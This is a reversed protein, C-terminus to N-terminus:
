GAAAVPPTCLVVLASAIEDVPLVFDVAGTQIAASPMEFYACTAQNQVLVTGGHKKIAAVGRAGNSGSGSLVVGVVGAGFIEAASEFLPNASSRLHDIRRGDEVAFTRDPRVSLHFHPPAVFVTRPTIADGAVAEVVRLKSRRALLGDLVRPPTPTRHLVIAVPTEFDPPLAAVIELLAQVSGASGAIVVLDRRRASRALHLAQNTAPEARHVAGERHASM